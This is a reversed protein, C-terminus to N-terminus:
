AGSAVAELARELEGEGVVGEFSGRVMGSGDVV